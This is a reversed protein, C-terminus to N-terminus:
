HIMTSRYYSFYRIDRLLSPAHSHFIPLHMSPRVRAAGVAAGRAAVWAASNIEEDKELSAHARM